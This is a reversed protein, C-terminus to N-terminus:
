TAKSLGYEGTTRSINCTSVGGNIRDWSQVYAISSLLLWELQSPQMIANHWSIESCPIPLLWGICQVQPYVLCEDDIMCSNSWEIVQDNSIWNSSWKFAQELLSFSVIASYSYHVVVADNLREILKQDSQSRDKSSSAAPKPNPQNYRLKRKVGGKSTRRTPFDRASECMIIHMRVTMEKQISSGPNIQVSVLNILIITKNQNKSAFATVWWM